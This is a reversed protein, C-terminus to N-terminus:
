ITFNIRMALGIVLDFKSDSFVSEMKWNLYVSYEDCTCVDTHELRFEELYTAPHSAPLLASLRAILLKDGLHHM